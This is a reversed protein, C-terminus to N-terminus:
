GDATPDYGFANDFSFGISFPNTGGPDFEGLVSVNTDNFVQTLGNPANDAYTTSINVPDVLTTGLFIQVSPITGSAAATAAGDLRFALGTLSLPTTGFLSDSWIQQFVVPAGGAGLFNDLGRTEIDGEADSGLPNLTGAQAVSAIAALAFLGTAAIAGARLADRLNPIYFCPRASPNPRQLGSLDLPTFNSM